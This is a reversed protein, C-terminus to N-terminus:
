PECPRALDCCKEELRRIQCRLREFEQRPVGKNKAASPGHGEKKAVARTADVQAKLETLNREVVALRQELNVIKPDVANHPASQQTRAFLNSFSLYVALDFVLFAVITLGLAKLSLEGPVYSSSSSPM